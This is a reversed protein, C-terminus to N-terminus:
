CGGNYEYTYSENNNFICVYNDKGFYEGTLPNKIGSKVFKATELEGLTIKLSSGDEPLLSTNKYSWLKASEEFSEIQENYLNQKHEKIIKAVSSTGIVLLISLVALTALLEVLTFGKKM